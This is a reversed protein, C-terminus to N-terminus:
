FAHIMDREARERIGPRLTRRDAVEVRLADSLAARVAEVAGIMDIVDRVVAPDTDIAIDVDSDPRDEGRATSGFVAAHVIGRRELEARAARLSRIIAPLRTGSFFAPAQGENLTRAFHRLRAKDGERVTVTVDAFGSERLRRRRKRQREATSAM